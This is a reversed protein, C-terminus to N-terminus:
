LRGTQEYVVWNDDDGYTGLSAGLLTEIGNSGTECPFSITKWQLATLNTEAPGCAAERYAAEDNGSIEDELYDELLTELVIGGSPIDYNDNIEAWEVLGNM